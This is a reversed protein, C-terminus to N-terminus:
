RRRPPPNRGLASYIIQEYNRFGENIYGGPTLVFRVIDSHMILGGPPSLGTLDFNQAGGISSGLFTNPGTQQPNRQFFNLAVGVAGSPIAFNPDANSPSNRRHPDFTILTAVPIKNTALRAVLQIAQEGGASYGTINIKGIPNIKLYDRIRQYAAGVNGPILPTSDYSIGGLGQVFEVFKANDGTGIVSQAGKFGVTFTDQIVPNRGGTIQAFILVPDIASSVRSFFADDSDDDSAGVFTPYLNRLTNAIGPITLLFQVTINAPTAFAENAIQQIYPKLIGADKTAWASVWREADDKNGFNWERLTGLVDTASAWFTGYDTATVGDMGLIDWGNISDNGCFGYLNLGGEEEIPDRGLFRGQNPSYYRSGYYVLGTESDTFKTSFRFPQDSVTTDNVTATLSEGFPSYEYTAATAGSASNILAAINGNGDYAPHYTKGTAHDAIQLLAGVGGADTLSRAIDLGWTYTRVLTLTFPSYSVAYEAILSWGDYLFRRQSLVTAYTTGNWGDRVLKEVRRGLYDYTFELRRAAAIGAGILAPKTEMSILRNEGDWRYLWQGDDLLNGDEDYTFVQTGAFPALTNQRSTYQNLANATHTKRDAANGTFGAWKRNGIADFDFEHQRGALPAGPSAPTDGLATPAATLEGRPNYTFTQNIANAAGGYGLGAFATGSQVVSDRQGLANSHYAYKVLSTTASQGWKADLTTLVDRNAEFSRKVFFANDETWLTKVLASDPEYGYHFIRSATNGTRQTTLTDLRGSGAFAYTQELDSSSGVATGLKFGRGRGAVTSGTTSTEYLRTVIRSAFYGGFAESYLRWPYAPDYVFDHARLVANATDRQEVGDLQGLPTYTYALKPTGDNYTIATQEGTAPDYTYASAVKTTSNPLTRAQQRTALQGAATYTYAVTRGAPDTKSALQGSAPDYGWTTKDGSTWGVSPDASNIDVDDALPWAAGTFDQPPQRFTRMAIQEGYLNFAYAVPYTGAGWQKILQGRHSYAFRTRKGAADDQWDKRGYYDYHVTSVVREDATGFAETVTTPLATGPIYGTVTTADNRSSIKKWPRGLPDYVTKFTLGDAGTIETSRGHLIKEVQPSAIGPLTTTLTATSAAVNVDKTVTTTNGEADITQTEDIRGAPHLTLRQRQASTIFPAASGPAYGRSETRSWWAGGFQELFSDSETIRDTSAATLDLEGNANVDLGSRLLQGLAGYRYLTPASGSQTTKLLRGPASVLPSVLEDYFSESVLDPQGAFGPRASALSRGLWDTWTKQWRPSPAVAPNIACNVQHWQAGSVTRAGSVFTAVGYTHYEPVVSGWTAKPRGDRFTETTTSIGGGAWAVTHQRTAPSHWYSKWGGDPLVESLLTGDGNFTRTTVMTESQGLGVEERIVRGAADYGFGTVMQPSAGGGGRVVVSVRGAADYAYGTTVGAEDTESIKLGGDYTASYTAGNSKTRGTLQGAFNYVSDTSSVLRWASDKWIHSETRVVLARTDRITVVKTSKGDLLNVPDLAQGDLSTLVTGPATTSGTITVVRSALYPHAPIYGTAPVFNGGGYHTGRHYAFVHRVGDPSTTSYTQRRLFSDSLTEWYNVTITTLSRDSQTFETRTTQTFGGAATIYNDNYALVTKATVVNGVSTQVLSPRIPAGYVDNVYEYYTVEGQATDQTPAVPADLFPRFRYKVRGGRYGAEVNTPYYQYAVWGGEPLTADKVYGLSGFDAPDLYYNFSTVLPPGGSGVHESTMVEGVTTVAPSGFTPSSFLRAVGMAAVKPPFNGEEDPLGPAYNAAERVIFSQNRSSGYTTTQALTEVPAELPDASTSWETRTFLLGVRTLFSYETRAVPFTAASTVNCVEKTLKLSTATPGKEVRYTLYPSGTFTPNYLYSSTEQSPHYFRIEFWQPGWVPIGVISIFAQPTVILRLVNNDRYVLVESSTPECSLAGPKALAAWDAALGSNVLTLDGASAGNPLTGLSIRWDVKGATMSSIMGALSPHAASISEVTFVATASVNYFIRSRPLHDMVVRYGPPAVFNIEAGYFNEGTATLSYSKGPEVRVHGFEGLVANLVTNDHNSSATPSQVFEDAAGPTASLFHGSLRISGSPMNGEEDEQVFVTGRTWIKVAVGGASNQTQAMLGETLGGSALVFVLIRLRLLRCVLTFWPNM